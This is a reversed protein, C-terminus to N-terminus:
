LKPYVLPDNVCFVNKWELAISKQQWYKEIYVYVLGNHIVTTSANQTKQLMECM